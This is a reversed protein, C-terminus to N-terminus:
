FVEKFAELARQRSAKLDVIPSPYEKDEDKLEPIWKDVFDRKPDYKKAQLDMNFIRFYPQADLGTSSCFGWGGVNSALDYDVLHRRFWREGWRWDILLNKSIFSATIMRSRNNIYGTNLLKRMIADVVPIGTIGKCWKIFNEVNNDWKIDMTSLNFPLDMSLYPWYCVANKYFDRWAIERIFNELSNNNKIDKNALKNGNLKYTKNVITRTSILGSSIFASLHSSGETALDDKATNYDRGCGKLFTDLTKNAFDESVQEQAYNRQQEELKFYSPIAYDLKTFQFSDNYNMKPFSSTKVLQDNSYRKEMIFSCWKRYWPAFISYPRNNLTRLINPEVVCLDQYLTFSFNDDTLGVIKIDRYLEDTECQINSSVLVPQGNSLSTCQSRFWTAFSQSNSLKVKEKYQLLVLPIQLESLQIRLSNLAKLTFDIKWNSELHAMWDNENIVFITLITCNVDKSKAAEFYKILRALATNDTLRLDNRFWHIFTKTNGSIEFNKTKEILLDYPKKRKGNNFKNAELATIANPYYTKNLSTFMNIDDGAIKIKKHVETEVSRSRRKGMIITNRYLKCELSHNSPRIEM